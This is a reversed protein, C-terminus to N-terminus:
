GIVPEAAPVGPPAFFAAADRHITPLRLVTQQTDEVLVPASTSAPLYDQGTSALHLEIVHGAPVVTDLPFFEMKATVTEGPVVPMFQSGGDRYRLDMIAHGLRRDDTADRLEAYIQGGSGSPTVQIHLQALGAIRMTEELPQSVYVAGDETVQMDNLPSILRDGRDWTLEQTFRWPTWQMDAPPWTQEIRWAGQDDQMEVHLEPQAGTGKLYHDFWELLDQAWDWRVSQPYTALGNHEDPRDPYMHGWQGFLGKMDLGKAELEQYFPFAMHPDVNWDQMGHIFYVSGDYNALVEERFSRDAWYDNVQPVVQDGTLYAAVGQAGGTQTDPCIANEAIQQGQRAPDAQENGTYTFTYYIGWLLGPGRSEASGNRWMLDHQGYLGSIPVVTKLHESGAIAGEWPTSGDYSRGTLAVNGNSWEQTGLWEVAAQVGAQEALGMLDMCGGSDGTGLVSVQAVAYGHPVFNEILFAGLRHAPQTAHPDFLLEGFYPGADAIVPVKQGEPVDPLFLGLHVTQTPLGNGLPIEAELFVSEGPLQIAYPGPELMASYTLDDFYISTHNTEFPL